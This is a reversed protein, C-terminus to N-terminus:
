GGGLYKGLFGDLANLLALRDASRSLYHDGDPLYITQETKGARLLSAEMMETQTDPVTYDERGQVLLIPIRIQDAHVAPSVAALTQPDGVDVLNIDSFAFNTAEDLMAPLDTPAAIAAACAYLTPEREAGELAAYGGYSEGVICIKGPDALRASILWRTADTVDDQMALGWQRKGLAEFRWGYGTSGRFQPQIVGWGRSAMFQALWDFGDDDHAFPGGHPLVVFSIPRRPANVPLTLRAPIVLGDRAVFSVWRVPAVQDAPVREYDYMLPNLVAPKQGRDLLWLAAPRDPPKVLAMVRKGDSSIDMLQVDSIKLATEIEGAIAARAPDIYVTREGADDGIRYGVMVGNDAVMSLRGAPASAFIRTITGSAIDIQVISSDSNGPELLAYLVGPDAASFALDGAEFRLSHWVGQASRRALIHQAFVGVQDTEETTFAGRVVGNQDAVWGTVEPRPPVVLRKKEDWLDVRYVEPRDAVRDGFQMLLQMRQGPLQSVVRDQVNPIVEPFAPQDNFPAGFLNTRARLRITGTRKGDATVAILWSAGYDLGGADTQMQLVSVLLTQDDKWEVWDPTAARASFTVTQDGDIPAIRVLPGDERGDIYAVLRGNPSMRATDVSPIEAYASAPPPAAGALAWMRQPLLVDAAILLWKLRVRLANARM